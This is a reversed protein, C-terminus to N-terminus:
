TIAPPGPRGQALGTGPGAQRRDALRPRSLVEVYMIRGNVVDLNLM